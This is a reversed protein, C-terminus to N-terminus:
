LNDLPSIQLVGAASVQLAAIYTTGNTALILADGPQVMVDGAVATVGSIGLKSYCPVTATLRVYRPVNGASDLPISVNASTGTFSITAGTKVIAVADFDAM